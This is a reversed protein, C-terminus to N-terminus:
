NDFLQNLLSTSLISKYNNRSVGSLPRINYPIMITYWVKFNVYLSNKVYNAFTKPYNKMCRYEAPFM